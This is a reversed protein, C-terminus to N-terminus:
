PKWQATGGKPRRDWVSWACKEPQWSPTSCLCGGMGRLPPPSWWFWLAVAPETCFTMMDLNITLAALKNWAFKAQLYRSPIITWIAFVLGYTEIEEKLETRCKTFANLACFLLMKREQVCSMNLSRTSFGARLKRTIDIALQTMAAAM